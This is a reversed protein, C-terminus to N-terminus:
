WPWSAWCSTAAVSRSSRPTYPCRAFTASAWPGPRDRAMSSETLTLTTRISYDRHSSEAYDRSSPILGASSSLGCIRLLNREARRRDSRGHPIARRIAQHQHVGASTREAYIEDSAVVFALVTGTADFHNSSFYM